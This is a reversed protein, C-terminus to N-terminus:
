PDYVTFLKSFYVDDEKVGAARANSDFVKIERDLQQHLAGVNPHTLAERTKSFVALLTSAANVIPNLGSASSFSAAPIQRVPERFTPAPQAPQPQYIPQQQYPPQQMAPAGQSHAARGGPMPRVVTGDGRNIPQRFVTKDQNDPAVSM